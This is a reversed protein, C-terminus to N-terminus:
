RAGYAQTAADPSADLVLGHIGAASAPRLADAAFSGELVIRAINTPAKVAGGHRCAEKRELAVGTREIARAHYPGSGIPSKGFYIREALLPEDYAM